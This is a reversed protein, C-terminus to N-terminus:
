TNIQESENYNEDSDAFLKPVRPDVQKQKKLALHCERILLTSLGISSVNYVLSVLFFLFPSLYIRTLLFGRSQVLFYVLEFLNFGFLFVFLGLRYKNYLLLIEVRNKSSKFLFFMYISFVLLCSNTITYIHILFPRYYSVLISAVISVILFIMDLAFFCKIFTTRKWTNIKYCRPRFAEYEFSEIM